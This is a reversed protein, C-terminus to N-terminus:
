APTGTNEAIGAEDAGLEFAKKKILAAAEETNTFLTKTPHVDGKFKPISPPPSTSSGNM